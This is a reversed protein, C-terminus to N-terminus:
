INQSKALVVPRIHCHVSYLVLIDVLCLVLTIIGNSYLFRKIDTELKDSCGEKFANETTCETLTNNVRIAESSREQLNPCCSPPIGSMSYNFSASGHMGCCQMKQQILAILEGSKEDYEIQKFNEEIEFAKGQGERYFHYVFIGVGLVTQILFMLAIFVYLTDLATPYKKISTVTGLLTLLILLGTLITLAIILDFVIDFQTVPIEIVSATYIGSVILLLGCVSFACRVMITWCRGELQVKFEM